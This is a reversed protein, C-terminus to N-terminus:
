SVLPLVFSNQKEYIVLLASSVVNVLFTQSHIKSAEARGSRRKKSRKDLLVSSCTQAILFKNAFVHASRRHTIPCRQYRPPSPSLCYRRSGTRAPPCPNWPGSFCSNQSPQTERLPRHIRYPQATQPCLWSVQRIRRASCWSSEPNRRSSELHTPLPGLKWLFNHCSFHTQSAEKSGRTRVPISDLFSLLLSAESSVLVSYNTVKSTNNKWESSNQGM